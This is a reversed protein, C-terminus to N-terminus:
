KGIKIIRDFDNLDKKIEINTFGSKEALKKIKEGNNYGIEFYIEGKENLFDSAKGLIKKYFILGTKNAVLAMRPEFNKIEIPLKEFEDEPIYPPNSVIIDYKCYVNSFVDSQFFNINVKNIESNKKAIELAADSIDIADIIAPNMEKALAIAIAGSGTGIDLISNAGPNEKIIKEVLYETEPRPILVTRNVLMKNGYFNTEGLIYQLPEYTARRLMFNEIQKKDEISVVNDDILYLDFIKIKLVHSIIQEANLRSNKIKKSKLFGTVQDLIELITRSKM